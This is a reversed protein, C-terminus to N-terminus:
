PQTTKTPNFIDDLIIAAYVVFLLFLMYTSVGSFRLANFTGNAWCLLLMGVALLFTLTIIKKM